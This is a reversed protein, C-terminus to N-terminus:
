PTVYVKVPKSRSILAPSSFVRIQYFYTQGLVVSNDTFHNQQMMGSLPQMFEEETNSRYIVAGLYEPSYNLDWSLTVAQEGPQHSISISEITTKEVYNDRLRAKVITENNILKGEKDFALIEYNYNFGRQAANDELQYFSGVQAKILWCNQSIDSSDQANAVFLTDPLDHSKKVTFNASSTKITNNSKADKKIKEFLSILKLDETTYDISDLMSRLVIISAADTIAKDTARIIIRDPTSISIASIDNKKASFQALTDFSATIFLTFFFLLRLTHKKGRM